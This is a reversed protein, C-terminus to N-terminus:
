PAKGLDGGGARPSQGLFQTDPLWDAKAATVPAPLDRIKMEHRENM